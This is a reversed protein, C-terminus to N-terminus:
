VAAKKPIRSKLGAVFGEVFTHVLADEIRGEAIDDLAFMAKFVDRFEDTIKLRPMALVKCSDGNHLTHDSILSTAENESRPLHYDDGVILGEIIGEPTSYVIFCVTDNKM